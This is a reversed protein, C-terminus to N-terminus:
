KCQLWHRKKQVVWHFAALGELGLCLKHKTQKSFFSHQFFIFALFFCISPFQKQGGGDTCSPLEEVAAAAEGEAQCTNDPGSGYICSRNETSCAFSFCNGSMAWALFCKARCKLLQASLVSTSAGMRQAENGSSDPRNNSKREMLFSDSM